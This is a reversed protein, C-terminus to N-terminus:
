YRKSWVPCGTLYYSKTLEDACLKRARDTGGKLLEDVETMTLAGDHGAVVSHVPSLQTVDLHYYDIIDRLNDPWFQFANSATAVDGEIITKQAPAYAVIADAMHINNRAWLLQLEMMTDKLVLKEDVPIFTMKKGSRALDDPFEPAPHGVMEDFYEANARKSIVALGESVAERMGTVHDFHEHSAIMQTVPKGPVLTRAFQIIAKAQAGSSVDLEFLTIHDKFEIATAGSPLLRWLHDAVRVAKVPQVADVPPAPADRVGAPAALDAIQGNVEYHDVFMRFWDTDRWDLRTDFGLPLMLGDVSAYGTLWTTHTVQGLNPNPANWRVFAPLNECLAQCYRSPTSFGATLRDGQKLRIDVVLYKGERRPASLRTAPDMMARVLVIPNNMMWMRRMHVGDGGQAGGFYAAVRRPQPAPGGPGAFVNGGAADWAIDGDLRQDKLPFAYASTALFPFQLFARESALFRDHELDYVRRLDNGAALKQPAHPSASIEEAGSLWSWQGYGAMSINRVARVKDAGGLAEAANRVLAAATVSPAAPKAAAAPAPSPATAAAQAPAAAPSLAAAGLSLAAALSLRMTSFGFARNM